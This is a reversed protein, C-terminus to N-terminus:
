RKGVVLGSINMKTKLQESISVASSRNNEHGVLVRVMEGRTTSIKQLYVDFGNAQLRTVLRKARAQDIFSGTQVSWFSIPKKASSKTKTVAKRKKPKAVPKPKATELDTAVISMDKVVEPQAASRDPVVITSQIESVPVGQQMDEPQVKEPLIKETIDEGPTRIFVPPPTNADPIQSENIAKAIPDLPIVEEDALKHIKKIGGTFLFPVLLAIFAILVVIGIVRQKNELNM